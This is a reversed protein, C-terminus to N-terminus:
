VKIAHEHMKIKKELDKISVLLDLDSDDSLHQQAIMKKKLINISENLAEDKFEYISSM